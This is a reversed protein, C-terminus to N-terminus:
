MIVFILDLDTSSFLFFLIRAFALDRQSHANNDIRTVGAVTHVDMDPIEDDLVVAVAVVHVLFFYCRAISIIIVVTLGQM